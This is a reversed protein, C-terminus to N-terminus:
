KMYNLYWDTFKKIGSEVGVKKSNGIINELKKFSAHTIEMDVKLPKSYNIIAKKNLNKEIIQIVKKITTKQGNGINFIRSKMYRYNLSDLKILKYISNTIEDIYTFDRQHNGDGNIFVKKSKFINDTFKYIAMDPRGYPGYVTFFRFGTFNINTLKSYAEAMLENTIKTVAYFQLPQSIVYTEKYPYKKLSGYVSSSSAYYIRNINKKQCFLILNLFGKINSDIYKHPNSISYRIGPQAALNIVVEFNKRKFSNIFKKKSIDLKYFTFNKYNKLNKLRNIKLKKDYYSNLNDVGTIAFKKELLKKALSYGIFGACGTILINKM